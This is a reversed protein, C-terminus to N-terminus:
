DPTTSQNTSKKENFIINCSLSDTLTEDIKVILGNEKLQQMEERIAAKDGEMLNNDVYLANFAIGKSNKCVFLYSDM